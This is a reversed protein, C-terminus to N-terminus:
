PGPPPAGPRGTMARVTETLADATLDAAAVYTGGLADALPRALGLRTGGEECDIVVAALGAQRVEDAALLSAAVPDAGGDAWTARGDSVLVLLPRYRERRSAGALDLAARIGAALPTRGGTGLTGLRAAAVETSGTPSLVVRADEGSFTVVAVRDRRQYADLLLAHVAARSAALRREVGMSGSADVALIVLNAVRHELVSQRIDQGGVSLPRGARGGETARRTAAAAITATAALPGGGPSEPVRAG